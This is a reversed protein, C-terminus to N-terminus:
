AHPRKIELITQKVVPNLVYDPRRPLGELLSVLRPARAKVLPLDTLGRERAHRSDIRRPIATAQVRSVESGRGTLRDRQLDM